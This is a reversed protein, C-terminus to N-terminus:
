HHASSTFFDCIKGGDCVKKLRCSNFRQGHNSTQGKVKRWAILAVGGTTQFVSPTFNLFLTLIVIKPFCFVSITNYIGNWLSMPFKPVCTGSRILFIRVCWPVRHKQFDRELKYEPQNKQDKETVSCYRTPIKVPDLDFCQGQPFM